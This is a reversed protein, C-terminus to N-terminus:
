LYVNDDEDSLDINVEENKLSNAIYIFAIAGLLLLTSGLLLFSSTFSTEM